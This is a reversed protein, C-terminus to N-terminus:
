EIKDKVEYKRISFHSPNGNPDTKVQIIFRKDASGLRVLFEEYNDGKEVSVIPPSTYEGCTRGRLSDQLYDLSEQDFTGQLIQYSTSCGTEMTHAILYAAAEVSQVNGDEELIYQMKTHPESYMKSKYYEAEAVVRAEEERQKSTISNFIILSVIVGLTICSLM